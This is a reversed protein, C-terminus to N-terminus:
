KARVFRDDVFKRLDAQKLQPTAEVLSERLPELGKLSPYPPSSIAADYERYGGELIRDEGGIYKRLVRLAARSDEKYIKAGDSVAAMFARAVEPQSQIFSRKAAIGSFAFEKGLDPIHLLPRYGLERALTSTPPSLVGGQVAGARMGALIDPIGGMSIMTVDRPNLGFHELAARLALNSASGIRTVGIKKSKLDVGKAISGDTIVTFVMQHVTTGILAVDAGQIWAAMMPAPSIHAFQIEGALLAQAATTGSRMYILNSDLGHKKFIGQEHTIWLTGIGASLASYATRILPPRTQAPM